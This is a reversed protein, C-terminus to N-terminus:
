SRTERWELSPDHEIMAALVRKYTPKTPDCEHEHNFKHSFVRWDLRPGKVSTDYIPDYERHDYERVVRYHKGDLSVAWTAVVRQRSIKLM